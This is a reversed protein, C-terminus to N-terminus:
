SVSEAIKGKIYYTEKGSSKSLQVNYKDAWKEIYEKADQSNNNNKIKFFDQTSSLAVFANHQKLNDHLALLHKKIDEYGSTEETIRKLKGKVGETQETYGLQKLLAEDSLNKM